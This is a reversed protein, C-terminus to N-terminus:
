HEKKVEEIKEFLEFSKEISDDPIFQLDPMIRLELIKGLERKIFGKASNLGEVTQLRKENDMTSVYVKAHSRDNSLEVNTISVLMDIRPDKIDRFIIQSINQKIDEELRRLKKNDM